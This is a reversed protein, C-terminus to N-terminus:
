GLALVIVEFFMLGEEVRATGDATVLNITMDQRALEQPHVPEKSVLQM